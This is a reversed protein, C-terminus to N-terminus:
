EQEGAAHHRQGPPHETLAEAAPVDRARAERQHHHASEDGGLARAEGQGRHPADDDPTPPTRKFTASVLITASQNVPRSIEVAIPTMSVLKGTPMASAIASRGRRAAAYEHRAATWTQTAAVATPRSTRTDSTGHDRGHARIGLGPGGAESRPQGPRSTASLPLM